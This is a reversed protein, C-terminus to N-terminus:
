RRLWTLRRDLARVLVAALAIKVADCPLYPLVCVALAALFGTHTLAAYWLTGLLYCAACGLVLCIVLRPLTRGFRGSLLGVVLAAALYGIVYGGTPGFIAAPGGQFGALVPVGFAALALFALQSVGGWVPGLLAGSLYVAFLALNVPVGWPMPLSIQSCVATLATFLACLVMSRMRRHSSFQPM